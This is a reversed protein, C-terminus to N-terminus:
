TLCFQAQLPRAEYPDAQEALAAVIAALFPALADTSTISIPLFSADLRRNGSARSPRDACDVLVTTMGLRM